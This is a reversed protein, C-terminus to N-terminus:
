VAVATPNPSSRQEQATAQRWEVSGYSSSAQSAHSGNGDGQACQLDSCNIPNPNVLMMMM